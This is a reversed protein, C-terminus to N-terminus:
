PMEGVDDFARRVERMVGPLDGRGGLGLALQLTDRTTSHIREMEKEVKRLRVHLVMLVVEYRRGDLEALFKRSEVCDPNNPPPVPQGPVLKDDEPRGRAWQPSDTRRMDSIRVSPKFCCIPPIGSNFMGCSLCYTHHKDPDWLVVAEDPM